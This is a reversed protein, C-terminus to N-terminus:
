TGYLSIPATRLSRNAPRTGSCNLLTGALTANREALSTVQMACQPGWGISTSGPTGPM